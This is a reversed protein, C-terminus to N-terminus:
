HAESREADTPGSPRADTGARPIAAVGGPVSAPRFRGWPRRRLRGM